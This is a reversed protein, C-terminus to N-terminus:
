GQLSQSQSATSRFASNYSFDTHDRAWIGRAGLYWTRGESVIHQSFCFSFLFINTDTVITEKGLIIFFLPSPM